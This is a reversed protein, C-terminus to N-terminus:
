TTSLPRPSWCTNDRIMANLITLLKRMCAVIAVKPKKGAAILRQHFHRIVANFRIANLTAMYLVTRVHARGGWVSRRGRFRGSDRNLPAVGVLAAIRKRDLQGLEPVDALLTRSLVPGVSPTSQLLTDRHQWLPSGKIAVALEGDVADRRKELWRLHPQIERRIGPVTTPALRNEEATHMDILQRRRALLDRLRQAQEDPLRRVPPRMAEAFRALIRADISDTKALQGAARAFDRVQRPNILVVPLGAAVLAGVVIAELRGTAEVVIREPALAALRATLAAVGATDNSVSWPEGSPCVAVDLRAKCVDIGVFWGTMM